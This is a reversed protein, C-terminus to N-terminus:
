RARSILQSARREAQDDDCCRAQGAAVGGADGADLNAGGAGDAVLAEGFVAVVGGAAGADAM